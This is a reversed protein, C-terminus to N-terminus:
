PRKPKVAYGLPWSLQVFLGEDLWTEGKIAQLDLPVLRFVTPVQSTTESFLM